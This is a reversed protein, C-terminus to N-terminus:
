QKCINVMCIEGTLSMGDVSFLIVSVYALICGIIMTSNINPSSMKVCRPFIRFIRWCVNCYILYMLIDFFSNPWYCGAYVILRTLRLVSVHGNLSFCSFFCIVLLHNQMEQSQFFIYTALLNEALWWDYNSQFLVIGFNNDLNRTSCSEMIKLNFILNIWVKWQSFLIISQIESRFFNM